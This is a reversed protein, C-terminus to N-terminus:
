GGHRARRLYRNAGRRLGRLARSGLMSDMKVVGEFSCGHLGLVYQGVSLIEDDPVSVLQALARDAGEEDVRLQQLVRVGAGFRLLGGLAVQDVSSGARSASPRNSTNSSREGVQAVLHGTM